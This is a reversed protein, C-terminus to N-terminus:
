IKKDIKVADLQKIVEDLKAKAAGKVRKLAADAALKAMGKVQDSAADAFKVNFDDGAAITKAIAARRRERWLEAQQFATRRKLFSFHKTQIKM